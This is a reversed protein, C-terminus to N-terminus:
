KDVSKLIVPETSVDAKVGTMLISVLQMFDIHNDQVESNSYNAWDPAYKIPINEGVSGILRQNDIHCFGDKKTADVPVWGYVPLYIESWVHYGVNGPYFEFGSQQRAPIGAARALAIFLDSYQGCDGSCTKLAEEAGRKAPPYVYKMTDNVWKFIAQAKEVPNTLGKTIEASTEKIEPSQELFPESKTYFTKIYSPIDNWHKAVTDKNVDAKYDYDMYSFKRVVTLSDNYELKSSLNWYLIKNGNEEDPFKETPEPFCETNNVDRQNTHESIASSWLMLTPKQDAPVGNRLNWAKLSDGSLPKINRIHVVLEGEVYRPQSFGNTTNAPPFNRELMQTSSCSYFFIGPILVLFLKLFRM